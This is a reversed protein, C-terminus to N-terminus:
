EPNPKLPVQFPVVLATGMLKATLPTAQPPDDVRVEVVVVREDDEALVVVPVLTVSVALTAGEAAVPVIVNLSPAVQSPVPVNFEPVAVRVVENLV